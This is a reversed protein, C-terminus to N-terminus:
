EGTVRNSPGVNTDLWGGLPEFARWAKQVRQMAQRTHLWPEPAWRKYVVLTRYRLLDIRPHDPDFGRPRTKLQQGNVDFHGKRLADLISALAPGQVDDAIARRMREVQDSATDYYGAAVMLGAASLQVYHGGVSAAIATKYPTKDRAFRVDRYPRFIKGTGFEKEVDSLLAEMPARVFEDYRIKNDNWYTKSNDAELGEYFVLADDPFGAFKM